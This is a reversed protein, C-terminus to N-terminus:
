PLKSHLLLLLTQASQSCSCSSFIKYYKIFTIFYLRKLSGKYKKEGECTYLKKLKFSLLIQWELTADSYHVLHFIIKVKGYRPSYIFFNRQNIRSGAVRQFQQLAPMEQLLSKKSVTCSTADGSFRRGGVIATVNRSHNIELCLYM